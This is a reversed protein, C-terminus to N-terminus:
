SKNSRRAFEEEALKFDLTYLLRIVLAEMSVLCSEMCGLRASGLLRAAPSEPDTDWATATWVLDMRGHYDQRQASLVIECSNQREFAKLTDQIDRMGTIASSGHNLALPVGGAISFVIPWVGVM